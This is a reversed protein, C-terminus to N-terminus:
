NEVIAILFFAQIFVHSTKIFVHIFFLFLIYNQPYTELLFSVGLLAPAM